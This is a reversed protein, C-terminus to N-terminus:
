SWPSFVVHQRPSQHLVSCIGLSHGLGDDEATVVDAVLSLGVSRGVTGAAVLSIMSMEINSVSSGFFVSM